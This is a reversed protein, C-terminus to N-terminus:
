MTYADRPNQEQASLTFCGQKSAAVGVDMDAVLNFAKLGFLRAGIHSIPIHLVRYRKLIFFVTPM